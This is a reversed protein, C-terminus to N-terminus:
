ARRRPSTPACASTAPTRALDAHLGALAPQDRRLQDLVGAHDPLRGHGQVRHERQARALGVAPLRRLRLHPLQRLQRRRRRRVARGVDARPHHRQGGRGHGHQGVAALRRRPGGGGTRHQRAPHPEVPHLQLVPRQDARRRGDGADADRDTPLGRMGENYATPHGVDPGINNLTLGPLNRLIDDLGQAPTDLIQQRTVVSVSEPVNQIKIPNRTATVVVEAVPAPAPPPPPPPRRGPRRARGPRGRRRRLAAPIENTHRPRRRAAAARPIIQSARLRTRKRVRATARTRSKLDSPQSSRASAAAPRRPRTRADPERPPALGLDQTVIFVPGALPASSRPPSPRRTAPSPAPRTPNDEEADGADQRRRELRDAARPGHLHRHRGPRERQRGHVRVPRAGAARARLRRADPRRRALRRAM